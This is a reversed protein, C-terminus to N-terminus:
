SDQTFLVQLVKWPGILSISSETSILRSRIDSPGPKNPARFAPRHTRTFSYITKRRLFESEWDKKVMRRMARDKVIKRKVMNVVKKLGSRCVTWGM